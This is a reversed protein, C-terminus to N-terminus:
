AIKMRQSVQPTYREVIISLLIILTVVM